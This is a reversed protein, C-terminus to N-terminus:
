IAELLSQSGEELKAQLERHPLILNTQKKCLFCGFDTQQTEQYKRFCEKHVLHGCSKFFLHKDGEAKLIHKSVLNTVGVYAM